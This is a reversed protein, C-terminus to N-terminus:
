KWCRNGAHEKWLAGALQSAFIMLTFESNTGQFYSETAVTYKKYERFEMLLLCILDFVWVAVKQTQKQENIKLIQKNWTKKGIMDFEM